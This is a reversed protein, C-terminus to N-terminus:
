RAATGVVAFEGRAVYMKTAGQVVLLDWYWLGIELPESQAPTITIQIGNNYPPVPAGAPGGGVAVFTLGAAPSSTLHLLETSTDNQAKRVSLVATAGTFDVAVEDKPDNGTVPPNFFGLQRGYSENQAVEIKVDSWAM